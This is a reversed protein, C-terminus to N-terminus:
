AFISILSSSPLKQANTSQYASKQTKSDKTGEIEKSPDLSQFNNAKYEQFGQKISKDLEDMLWDVTTQDFKSDPHTGMRQTMQEYTDKGQMKEIYSKIDQGSDLFAYYAKTAKVSNMGAEIYHEDNPNPKLEQTENNVSSFFFSGFLEGISITGSSQKSDYPTKTYSEYEQSCIKSVDDGYMMGSFGRMGSTSTFNVANFLPGAEKINVLHAGYEAFSNQVSVVGDLLSGKSVYSKPMKDVEEQTMYGTGEPDLSNGAVTKYLNWVKSVMTLPDINDGRAKSYEDAMDMIKQHVKMNEPLGAAKNFDTGFFGNEDVKFGWKTSITATTTQTTQTSATADTSLAQATDTQSVVQTSNTTTVQLLSSNSTVVM